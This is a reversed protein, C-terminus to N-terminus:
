RLDVGHWPMVAMLPLEKRDGGWGQAGEQMSALRLIIPHGLASPRCLTLAHM